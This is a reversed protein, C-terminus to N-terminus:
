GQEGTLHRDGGERLRLHNDAWGRGERSESEGPGQTPLLSIFAVRSRRNSSQTRCPGLAREFHCLTHSIHIHTPHPLIPRWTGTQSEYLSGGGKM